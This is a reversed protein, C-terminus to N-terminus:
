DCNSIQAQYNFDRGLIPITPMSVVSLREIFEGTSIKVINVLRKDRIIFVQIENQKMQRLPGFFVFFRNKIKCTAIM